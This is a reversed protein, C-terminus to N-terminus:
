RREDLRETLQAQGSRTRDEGVLAAIRASAKLADEHEWVREVQWDDARLAADVRRDRAVNAKLKPVWYAQNSGPTSGHELCGHWFCGDVFVAIRVRTFVVDPRVKLGNTCRVLHDKRFRLGRRHLASRLQLESRTDRRPNAKGIKTAVDNTPEPYPVVVGGGLAVTRENGSM